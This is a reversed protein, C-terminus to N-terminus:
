AAARAASLAEEVTDLLCAIDIPKTVFAAAGDALLREIQDRRADASVAVVPIAATRADAKLAALVDAGHRDPLHLDLLVLDPLRGSAMALGESGSGAVLLDLDARRAFVSEMLALNAANDEIYLVTKPALM